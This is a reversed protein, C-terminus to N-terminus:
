RLSTDRVGVVLADAGAGCIRIMPITKVDHWKPYSGDPGWHQSQAQILIQKVGLDKFCRVAREVRARDFQSNGFQVQESGGRLGALVTDTALYNESAGPLPVDEDDARFGDFLRKCTVAPVQPKQAHVPQGGLELWADRGDDLRVGTCQEGKTAVSLKKATDADVGIEAAGDAVESRVRLIVYSDTGYMHGDDMTITRYTPVRGMARSVATFAKDARHRTNLLDDVTPRHGALVATGPDKRHTETFRGDGDSRPHKTEDFQKGIM